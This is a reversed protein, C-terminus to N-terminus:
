RQGRVVDQALADDRSIDRLFASGDRREPSLGLEPLVTRKKLTQAVKCFTM